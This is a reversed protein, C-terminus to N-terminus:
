KSPSPLSKAQAELATFEPSTEPSKDSSLATFRDQSIRVAIESLEPDAPDTLTMQDPSRFGYTLHQDDAHGIFTLDSGDRILSGSITDSVPALIRNLVDGNKQIQLLSRAHNSGQVAWCGVLRQDVNCIIPKMANEDDLLNFRPDTSEPFSQGSKLAQLAKWRDNSLRIMMIAADEPLILLAGQPTFAFLSEAQNSSNLKNGKTQITSTHKNADGLSNVADKGDPGIDCLSWSSKKDEQVRKALWKGPIRSDIAAWGCTANVLLLSVAALSVSPFKRMIDDQRNQNSPNCIVRSMTSTKYKTQLVGGTDM